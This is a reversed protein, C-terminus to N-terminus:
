KEEYKIRFQNSQARKKGNKETNDQVLKVLFNYTNNSLKNVNIHPNNYIKMQYFINDVEGMMKKINHYAKSCNSTMQKIEPINPNLKRLYKTKQLFPTYLKNIINEDKSSVRRKKKIVIKKTSSTEDSDNDHEDPCLEEFKNFGVFNRKQM